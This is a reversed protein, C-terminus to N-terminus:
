NGVIEEPSCFNERIAKSIGRVEYVTVYGVGDKWYAYYHPYVNLYKGQFKKLSVLQEGTYLHRQNLDKLTTM